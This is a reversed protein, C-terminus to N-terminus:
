SSTSSESEPRPSLAASRPDGDEEDDTRHKLVGIRDVYGVIEALLDPDAINWSEGSCVEADVGLQVRDGSCSLSYDLAPAEGPVFREAPVSLLAFYGSDDTDAQHLDHGRETQLLEVLKEYAARLVPSVTATM